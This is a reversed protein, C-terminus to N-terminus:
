FSLNQLKLKKVKMFLEQINQAMFNFDEPLNLKKDIPDIELRADLEGHSIRNMVKKVDKSRQRFIWIVFIWVTLCVLFSFIFFLFIIFNLWRRVPGRNLNEIIM